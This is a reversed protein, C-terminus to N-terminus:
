KKRFALVLVLVLALVGGGIYFPTYDTKKQVIVAPKPNNKNILGNAANAATGLISQLWDPTNDSM